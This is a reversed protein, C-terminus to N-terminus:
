PAMGPGASAQQRELERAQERAQTSAYIAAQLDCALAPRSCASCAEPGEDPQKAVDVPAGARVAAAM